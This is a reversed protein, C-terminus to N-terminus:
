LGILRTIALAPLLTLTATTDSASTIAPIVVNDPNLGRRHTIHALLLAFLSISLFSLLNTLLSVSVLFKLVGMNPMGLLLYTILAFLLHLPAAVAEVRLTRRLGEDLLDRLSKIYGLALSTTTLSGIISGVDGLTDILSPYLVIIGPHSAIGERLQSLVVGNLSALLTSLIVAVTGERIIERFLPDRWRRWIILLSLVLAALFGTLLIKFGLDWIIIILAAVTAYSASVLIDNISSLWPYVIIDPDLGKRYGIIAILITLPMSCLVALICTVLPVLLYLPLYLPSIIGLSLNLIFAILGMGLTDLFTLVYISSLLSYYTETNRRLRPAILGLHLMTSLNGSFIGSIDGRVTLIPPYLALLWPRSRFWPSLLSVLGGAFLGMVDASLALLAQASVSVYPRRLGNKGRVSAGDLCGRPTWPQLGV